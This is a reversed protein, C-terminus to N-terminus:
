LVVALTIVMRIKNSKCSLAELHITLSSISGRYLRLIDETGRGSVSDDSETARFMKDDVPPQMRQQVQTALM